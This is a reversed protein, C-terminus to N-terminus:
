SLAVLPQSPPVATFVFLTNAAVSAEETAVQVAIVTSTSPDYHSLHEFIPADPTLAPWRTAVLSSTLYHGRELVVRLEGSPTRVAPWCLAGRGSEEYFDKCIELIAAQRSSLILMVFDSAQQEITKAVAAAAELSPRGIAIM